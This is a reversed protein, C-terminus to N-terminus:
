ADDNRRALIISGIYFRSVPAMADLPLLLRGLLHLPLPVLLNWGLRLVAAIGAHDAGGAIWGVRSFSLAQAALASVALLLGGIQRQAVPTFGAQVIEAALGEVTWRRRDTPGTGAVLFPCLLLCHGGPRLVRRMEALVAASDTYQLLQFACVLDFSEAGFPLRAADAVVNVDMRYRDSAVIQLGPLAQLMPKRFPSAGAGLDLAHRAGTAPIETQLFQRVVHREALLIDLFHRYAPKLSAM